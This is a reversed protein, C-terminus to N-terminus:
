SQVARKASVHLKVDRGSEASGLYSSYKCPIYIKASSYARIVVHLYQLTYIAIVDSVLYAADEM